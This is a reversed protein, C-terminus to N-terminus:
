AVASSVGTLLIATVILSISLAKTHAEAREAVELLKASKGRPLIVKPPVAGLQM